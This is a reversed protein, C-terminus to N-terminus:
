TCLDNPRHNLFIPTLAVSGLMYLTTIRFVLVVIMLEYRLKNKYLIIQCIDMHAFNALISRRLGISNEKINAKQAPLAKFEFFFSNRKKRTLAPLKNQKLIQPLIYYVPFVLLSFTKCNCSFQLAYSSIYFASHM